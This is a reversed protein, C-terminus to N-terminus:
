GEGSWLTQTTSLFLWPLYNPSSSFLCGPSETHFKPLILPYECGVSPLGPFCRASSAGTQVMTSEPVHGQMVSLSTKCGVRGSLSFCHLMVWAM